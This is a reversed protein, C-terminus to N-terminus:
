RAFPDHLDVPGPRRSKKKAPKSSRPAPPPEVQPAPKKRKSKTAPPTPEPEDVAEDVAPTIPAPPEPPPMPVVIPEPVLPVSPEAPPPAPHTPPTSSAPTRSVVVAGVIVGALAMGIPILWWGPWIGPRPSALRDRVGALSAPRRSPDNELMDLVLRDVHPPVDALHRPRGFRGLPLTGTLLHYALVGLAYIDTRPGAPLGAFQEPATYLTRGPRRGPRAVGIGRLEVYGAETVLVDDPALGGHVLGLAHMAELARALASLLAIAEDRPLTGHGLLENLPTGPCVEVIRFALGDRYGHELVRPLGPAPHAALTRSADDFRRATSADGPEPPHELEV